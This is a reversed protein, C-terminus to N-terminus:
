RGVAWWRWSPVFTAMPHVVAPYSIGCSSSPSLFITFPSLSPLTALPLLVSLWSPLRTQRLTSGLVWSMTPLHRHELLGDPLTGLFLQELPHNHILEWCCFFHSVVSSVQQQNDRFKRQKPRAWLTRIKERVSKEVSRGSRSISWGSEIM